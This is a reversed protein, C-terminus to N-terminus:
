SYVAQTDEHHIMRQTLLDVKVAQRLFRSWRMRCLHDIVFARPIKGRHLLYSIRHAYYKKGGVYFEGYGSATNVYGKWEECKGNPAKMIVDSYLAEV